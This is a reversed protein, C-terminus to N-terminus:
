LEISAADELREAMYRRVDSVGKNYYLKAMPLMLADLLLSLQLDGPNAIEFTDELVAQLADKIDRKELSNLELRKKMQQEFLLKRKM